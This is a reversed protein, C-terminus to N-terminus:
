NNYFAGGLCLGDLLEESLVELHHGAEPVDAVQLFSFQADVLVGHFGVILHGLFLFFEDGFQALAGSFGM